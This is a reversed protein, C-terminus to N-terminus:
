GEKSEIGPGLAEATGRRSGGAEVPMRAQLPGDNTDITSSSTSSSSTTTTTTTTTAGCGAGGFPVTTLVISGVGVRQDHGGGIDDITSIVNAGTGDVAEDEVLVM